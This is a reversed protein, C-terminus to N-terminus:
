SMTSYSHYYSSWLLSGGCCVCWEEEARPEVCPVNVVAEGLLCFSYPASLRFSSIKRKSSSLISSKRDKAEQDPIKM